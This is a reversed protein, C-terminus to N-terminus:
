WPSYSLPTPNPAPPPPSSATSYPSSPSPAPHCSSSHTSPHPPTNPEPSTSSVQPQSHDIELRSGLALSTTGPPYCSVFRNSSPDVRIAQTSTCGGKWDPSDIASGHHASRFCSHAVIWGARRRGFFPYQLTLCFGANRSGVRCTPQMGRRGLRSWPGHRDESRATGSPDGIWHLDMGQMGVDRQSVVKVGNALPM